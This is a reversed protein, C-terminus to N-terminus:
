NWANPRIERDLHELPWYIQHGIDGIILYHRMTSIDMFYEGDILVEDVIGDPRVLALYSVVYLLPLMLLLVAVCFPARANM